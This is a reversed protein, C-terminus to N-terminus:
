DTANSKVWTLFDAVSAHHKVRYSKYFLYDSEMCGIHHVYGTYLRVGYEMNGGKSPITSDVFVFLDAHAAAQIDAESLDDGSMHAEGAERRRINTIWDFYWEYGLDKLESALVELRPLNTPHSSSSIYFSNGM